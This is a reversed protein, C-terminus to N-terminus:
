PYPQKPWRARSPSGPEPMHSHIGTTISDHVIDVAPCPSDHTPQTGHAPVTVHVIRQSVSIGISRALTRSRRSAGARWTHSPTPMQGLVHGDSFAVRQVYTRHTALGAPRRCGPARSICGRLARQM